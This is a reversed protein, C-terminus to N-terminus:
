GFGLDNNELLLSVDALVRSAEDEDISNIRANVTKLYPLNQLNKSLIFL